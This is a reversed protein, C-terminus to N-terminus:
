NESVQAAHDIVVFDVSGKRSELKLGLQDELAIFISPQNDSPVLRNSWQMDIDFKQKLGTEDIM